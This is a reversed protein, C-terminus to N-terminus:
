DVLSDIVKETEARAAQDEPRGMKSSTRDKAEAVGAGVVVVVIPGTLAGISPSAQICLLNNTFDCTFSLRVTFHFCSM